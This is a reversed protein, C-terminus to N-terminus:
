QRNTIRTYNTLSDFDQCVLKQLMEDPGELAKMPCLSTFTVSEVRGDKECERLTPCYTKAHKFYQEEICVLLLLDLPPVPLVSSGGEGGGVGM